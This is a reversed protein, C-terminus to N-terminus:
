ADVADYIVVKSWLEKCREVFAKHVPHVQYTEQDEPTDFILLLSLDYGREIVPRDTSAPVGIHITRIVEIPKLSQLGELLKSKDEESAANKLWFFVNHVFM